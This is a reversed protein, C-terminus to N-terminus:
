EKGVAIRIRFLAGTPRNDDVQIEGGLSTVTRHVLSLGLGRGKGVPRTTFFPDFIRQRLEPPVGPGNDGVLIEVVGGLRRVHITLRLGSPVTQCANQIMALIAHSFAGGDGRLDPVPEFRKELVTDPPLLAAAVELARDIEQAVSFVRSELEDVHSFGKLARVIATIRDGGQLSQDILEVADRRIFEIKMERCFRDLDGQREPDVLRALTDILTLLRDLYRSLTRINSIIFGMPNNIEHAIGAALVGVSALKEQQLLRLHAEELERTRDKVRQDLEASLKRYKEESRALEDHKRLLEDYSRTVVSTHMQTTLLRKHNNRLIVNVVHNLITFFGDLRDDDERGTVVLRGVEEGELFLPAVREVGVGKFLPHSEVCLPIGDSLELRVERIGSEIAGRFLPRIDEARLIDAVSREEGVVFTVSERNQRM